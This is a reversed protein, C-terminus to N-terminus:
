KLSDFWNDEFFPLASIEFLERGRIFWLPNFEAFNKMGEEFTCRLDGAFNDKLYDFGGVGLLPYFELCFSLYYIPDGNRYDFTIIDFPSNLDDTFTAPSLLLGVGLLLSREYITM